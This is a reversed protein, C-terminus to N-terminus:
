VSKKFIKYFKSFKFKMTVLLKVYFFAIDHIISNGEQRLFGLLLWYDRIRKFFTNVDCKGLRKIGTSIFLKNVIVLKNTKEELMINSSAQDAQM